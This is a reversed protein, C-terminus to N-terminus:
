EDEYEEALEAMRIPMMEEVTGFRAEKDLLDTYIEGHLHGIEHQLLRALFGHAERAIKEGERTMAEFYISRYRWVEGMMDPVSYCGEWDKAKGNAEIPRYWPNILPMLPIVDECDKRRSKSEEPVNIFVISWPQGIQPAALGAPLGYPSELSYIFTEMQDLFQLVDSSLPFSLSEAPTRLVSHDNDNVTVLSFPM